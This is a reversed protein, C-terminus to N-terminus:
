LGIGRRVRAFPPSIRSPGGSAPQPEGSNAGALATNQAEGALMRQLRRAPDALRVARARVVARESGLADVRHPAAIEWPL